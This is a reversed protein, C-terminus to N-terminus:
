FSSPAGNKSRHKDNSTAHVRSSKVVSARSTWLLGHRARGFCLPLDRARFAFIIHKLRDGSWLLPSTRLLRERSRLRPPRPPFLVLLVLVQREDLLGVLLPPSCFFSFVQAEDLLAFSDQHDASIVTSEAKDRRPSAVTLLVLKQSAGPRDPSVRRADTRTIEHNQSPWNPEINFAAHHEGTRERERFLIGSGPCDVDDLHEFKVQDPKSRQTSTAPYPM